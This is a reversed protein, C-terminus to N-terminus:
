SSAGSLQPLEAPDARVHREHHVVADGDPQLINATMGFPLSFSASFGQGAKVNAINQLLVPGPELPTLTQKDARPPIGTAQISTPVGDTAPLAALATVPDSGEDRM